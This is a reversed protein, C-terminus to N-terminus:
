PAWPPAVRREARQTRLRAPEDPRLAELAELAEFVVM